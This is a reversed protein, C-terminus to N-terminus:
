PESYFQVDGRKIADKYVEEEFTKLFDIKKQNTLLEVIQSEVYEFPAESGSPLYEQINLMYYFSSDVVEVYRNSRLFQNANTVQLPINDMVDYFEVWRDYFYDYIVANQISYKEIKELSAENNSKYWTRVEVLGPADAPVKLFLGKILSKDLLFKKRNSEYYDKKESERIVVSLKERVLREQYRYKVLSHRYDEVLRDIEAMEDSLNRTAVQYNLADKVWKRVYSEALLLSDSSTIGKPIRNEVESRSLTQDKVKVVVEADNVSLSRNCSCLLSVLAIFIFCSKM